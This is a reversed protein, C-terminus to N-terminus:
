AYSSTEQDVVSGSGDAMSMSLFTELHKLEWTLKGTFMYLRSRQTGVQTLTHSCAPPM